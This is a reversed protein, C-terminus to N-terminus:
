IKTFRRILQIHQSSLLKALPLCENRRGIVRGKSATYCNYHMDATERAPNEPPGYLKRLCNVQTVEVRQCAHMDSHITQCSGGIRGSGVVGM